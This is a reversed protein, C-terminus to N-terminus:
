VTSVQAAKKEPSIGRAACGTSRRAASATCSKSAATVTPENRPTSTSKATGTVSSPKMEGKARRRAREVTLSAPRVAPCIYAMEVSPLMM